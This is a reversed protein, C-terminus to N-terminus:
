RRRVRLGLAFAVVVLWALVASSAAGAVACGSGGGSGMPATGGDPPPPAGAASLQVVEACVTQSQLSTRAMDGDGFASITMCYPRTPDLEPHWLWTPTPYAETPEHGKFPTAGVYVFTQESGGNMPAVHLTHIVSSAPTKPVTAATYDVTLFGHYEAAVCNGSAIDGVPYRVRWFRVARLVPAVGETKDYSSATTFRTVEVTADQYTATLVQEASGVLMGDATAPKVQYFSAAGLTEEVGLGIKVPASLAVTQTGARLTLGVPESRSLVIFSTATTVGTAGARPLGVPQLTAVPGCARARSGGLAWALCGILLGALVAKRHLRAQM